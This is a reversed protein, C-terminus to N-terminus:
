KFLDGFFKGVQGVGQEVGKGITNGVDVVDDMFDGDEPAKAPAKAPKKRGPGVGTLFFKKLEEPTTEQGMPFDKETAGYQRLIMNRASRALGINRATLHRNLGRTLFKILKDDLAMQELQEQSYGGGSAVYKKTQEKIIRIKM